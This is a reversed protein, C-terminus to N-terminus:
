EYNYNMLNYDNLSIVDAVEYDLDGITVYYNFDAILDPKVIETATKGFVNVIHESKYDPLNKKEEKVDVHGIEQEPTFSITKLKSNEDDYLQIQKYESKFQTNFMAYYTGGTSYVTQPHAKLNDVPAIYTYQDEKTRKEFQEDTFTPSLLLLYNTPGNYAFEDLPKEKVKVYHEGNLLNYAIGCALIFIILIGLTIKRKM